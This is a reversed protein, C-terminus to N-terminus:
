SGESKLPPAGNNKQNQFNPTPRQNLQAANSQQGGLPIIRPKGPMGSRFLVNPNPAIRQETGIKKKLDMTNELKRKEIFSFIPIEWMGTRMGKFKNYAFSIQEFAWKREKLKSFIEERKLGQKEANEIFSILNFLDNKDKFLWDEYRKKYWEQLAIYAVLFLVVLIVLFLIMRGLPKCDDGCNANTEGNSKECVSNHNCEGLVLSLSLESISPTFYVPLALVDVAGSALFEFNAEGSSLDLPFIIANDLYTPNSASLSSVRSKPLTIVAFVKAAESTVPKIKFKIYSVLPSSLNREISSYVSAEADVDLLNLSWAFVSDQIASEAASTEESTASKVEALKVKTKDIVFKGSSKKTTNVSNPISIGQLSDILSIYRVTTLNGSSNSDTQIQQIKVEVASLNLANNLYNKISGPYLNIQAKLNALKQRYSAIASTLYDRPSVTRVSFNGSTEGLNNRVIVRVLYNKLEPSSYKHTVYNVSTEVVTTNDGFNWKYLSINSGVVDLSFRTDVGAPAELPNLNQIIPFNLVEIQKTLIIQAGLKLVLSYTSPAAPVKLGAGSINIPTFRSTSIRAPDATLVYAVSNEKLENNYRIKMQSITLAQNDANSTIKIPIFCGNVCNSNYKRSVYNMMASAMDANGLSFTGLGAYKKPQTFISFDARASTDDLYGCPSNSETRLKYPHNFESSETNIQQLCITINTPVALSLNIDCSIKGTSQTEVTCYSEDITFKFKAKGATGSQPLYIDAGARYIPAPEVSITQCYNRSPDIDGAMLAGQSPNYCGYNENGCYSAGARESNWLLTGENLIDIVVPTKCSEGINSAMTLNFTNINILDSEVLKFGIVKSAGSSLSFSNANESSSITYDMDCNANTCNYNAGVQTLLEKLGISSEFASVLTNFPADSITINIIGKLNEGPGYRDAIGASSNNGAVVNLSSMFSLSFIFIAILMILLSSQNVGRESPFIM